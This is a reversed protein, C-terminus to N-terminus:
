EPYEISNEPIIQGGRGVAAGCDKCFHYYGVSDLQTTKHPCREQYSVVKEKLKSIQSRVAYEKRSLRETERTIKNIINRVTSPKLKHQTNM